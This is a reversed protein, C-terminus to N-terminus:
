PKIKRIRYPTNWTRFGGGTGSDWSCNIWTRGNKFSFGPPEKYFSQITAPLWTGVCMVEVKEGISYKM